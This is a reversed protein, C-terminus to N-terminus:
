DLGVKKEMYEKLTLLIGNFGRATMEARAERAGWGENFVRHLAIVAGTRDMGKACHVFIPRAEPDALLALADRVTRDSPNAMGNMSAVVQRLGLEAAWQRERDIAIPHAAQQAHAEM